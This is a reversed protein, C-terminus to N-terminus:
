VKFGVGRVKKEPVDYNILVRAGLPAEGGQQSPLCADTSLLLHAGEVEGVGGLGGGGGLGEM